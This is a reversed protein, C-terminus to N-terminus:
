TEPETMMLGLLSPLEKHQKDAIEALSQEPGEVAVGGRRLRLMAEEDTMGLVPALKAIPVDTLGQVIQQSGHFEQGGHVGGAGFPVSALILLTAIAGLGGVIAKNRPASLMAVLGRWNRALHLLMAAVFLMGVWEHVESLLGSRVEFFLLVGTVTTALFTVLSLPTAYNRLFSSM